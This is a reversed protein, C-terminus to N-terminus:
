TEFCQQRIKDDHYCSNHNEYFFKVKNETKDCKAVGFAVTLLKSALSSMFFQQWHALNSIIKSVFVILTLIVCYLFFM